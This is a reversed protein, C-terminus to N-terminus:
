SKEQRMMESVERIENVFRRATKGATILRAVYGFILYLPSRGAWGYIQEIQWKPPFVRSWIYDAINIKGHEHLLKQIRYQHLNVRNGYIGDNFMRLLIRKEDENLPIMEDHNFLKIAMHRITREFDEAKVSRLENTIYEFDLNSNMKRLFVYVDVIHRIGLGQMFTHHKYAHIILYIYFDNDSLKKRYKLGDSSDNLLFQASKKKYYELMEVYDDTGTCLARHLEIHVAEKKFSQDIRSSEEHIFGRKELHQEIEKQFSGDYLFDYDSMQRFYSQPYYQRLIQGKLPVYWIGKREFYCILEKTEEDSVIMRYMVMDLNKKIEKGFESEASVVGQKLLFKGVMADLMHRRANTYLKKLDDESLRSFDCGSNIAGKCAECLLMADRLNNDM